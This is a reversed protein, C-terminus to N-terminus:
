ILRFPCDRGQSRPGDSGADQCVSSPLDPKLMDPGLAQVGPPMWYGSPGEATAGALGDEGAEPSLCRRSEQKRLFSVGGFEQQRLFSVVSSEQKHLFSVGSSEPNHLFSV